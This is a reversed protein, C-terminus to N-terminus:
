TALVAELVGEAGECYSPNRLRWMRLHEKQRQSANGSSCGLSAVEAYQPQVLDLDLDACAAHVRGVTDRLATWLERGSATWQTSADLIQAGVRLQYRLAALRRRALDPDAVYSRLFHLWMQAVRSFVFVGHLLGNAPRADDRWPSYLNEPSWGEGHVSPELVPDVDQFAFLHGHSLEHVLMECLIAPSSPM